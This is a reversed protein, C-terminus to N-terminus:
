RKTVRLTNLRSGFEFLYIYKDRRLTRYSVEEGAEFLLTERLESFCAELEPPAHQDVDSIAIQWPGPSHVSRWAEFDSESVTCFGIALRRSGGRSWTYINSERDLENLAIPSSQFESVSEWTSYAQCEVRSKVLGFIALLVVCIATLVGIRRM